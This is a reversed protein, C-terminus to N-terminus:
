KDPREYSEGSRGAKVLELLEALAEVKTVEKERSLQEARKLLQGAMVRAQAEEAGLGILLSSVQNEEDM